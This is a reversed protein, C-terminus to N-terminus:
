SKVRSLTISRLTQSPATDCQASNSEACYWVAGLRVQRLTLWDQIKSINEIKKEFYWWMSELLWPFILKRFDLFFPKVRRLSVSHTSYDSKACYRVASLGVGRLTLCNQIKPSPVTHYQVSDLEAWYWVAGLWTKQSYIRLFLSKLLLMTSQKDRVWIPEIWSFSIKKAFSRLNAWASRALKFSLFVTLLKM